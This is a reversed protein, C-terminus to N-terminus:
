LLEGVLPHHRPGTLLLLTASPGEQQGQGDSEEADWGGAGPGYPHHLVGHAGQLFFGWFCLCKYVSSQESNCPSVCLCSELRDHVLVSACVCIFARVQDPVHVLASKRCICFCFVIASCLRARHCLLLSLSLFTRWVSQLEGGWYGWNAKWVCVIGKMCSLIIVALPFFIIIFYYFSFCFAPIILLTKNKKEM